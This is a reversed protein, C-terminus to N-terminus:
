PLSFYKEIEDKRDFWLISFKLIEEEYNKFPVLNCIFNMSKLFDRLVVAISHLFDPSLESNKENMGNIFLKILIYIRQGWDSFIDPDKINLERLKEYLKDVKIILEEMQEGTIKGAEEKLIKRYYCLKESEIFPFGCNYCLKAINRNLKNCVPCKNSIGTMIAVTM